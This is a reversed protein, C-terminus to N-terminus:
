ATAVEWGTNPEHDFIDNVKPIGLYIELPMLEIKITFGIKNKIKENSMM